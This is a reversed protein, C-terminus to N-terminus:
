RRLRLTRESVGLGTAIRAGSVRLERLACVADEAQPLVRGAIRHAVSPRDEVAHDGARWRSM